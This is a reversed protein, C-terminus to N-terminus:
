SRYSTHRRTAAIISTIKRCNRSLVSLEFPDVVVRLEFTEDGVEVSACVVGDRPVFMAAVRTVDEDFRRDLIQQGTPDLELHHLAVISSIHQRHFPSAIAINSQITTSSCEAVSGRLCRQLLIYM